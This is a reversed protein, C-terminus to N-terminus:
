YSNGRVTFPKPTFRWQRRSQAGYQKCKWEGEGLSSYPLSVSLEKQGGRKDSAKAQWQLDKDIWVTLNGCM